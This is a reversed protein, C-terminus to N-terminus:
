TRFSNIKKFVSDLISQDPKIRFFRNQGFEAVPELLPELMRMEESIMSNEGTTLFYIDESSRLADLLKDKDLFNQFRKGTLIMIYPAQYWDYTFIKKEDVMAINEAMKYADNKSVSSTHRWIEKPSFQPLFVYLMMIGIAIVPWTRIGELFVPTLSALGAVFMFDAASWYRYWPDGAGLFWWSYICSSFLFIYFSFHRRRFSFVLLTFLLSAYFIMVTFSDHFFSKATVVKFKFFAIYSSVKSAISDNKSAEVIHGFGRELMFAKREGVADKWVSLSSGSLVIRPLIKSYFVNPGLVLFAGIGFVLVGKLFGKMNRAKFAPYFYEILYILLLVPFLAVIVNTKVDLGLGILLFSLYRSKKVLLLYLGSFIFFGCLPEGIPAIFAADDTFFKHRCFFVIIYLLIAASKVRKGKLIYFLFFSLFAVYYAVLVFIVGHYSATGMSLWLIFAPFYLEPGTSIVPDFPIKLCNYDYIFGKGMLMNQYSILNYSADFCFGQNYAAFCLFLIFASLVALAVLSDGSIKRDM